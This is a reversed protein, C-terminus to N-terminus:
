MFLCLISGLLGLVACISTLVKYWKKASVRSIIFYTLSAALGFPCGTPDNCDVFGKRQLYAFLLINFFLLIHCLYFLAKKMNIM